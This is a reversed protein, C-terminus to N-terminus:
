RLSWAATVVIVAIPKTPRPAMPLRIAPRRSSPLWTWPVFRVTDLGALQGSPAHHPAAGRALDGLRGLHDETKGSGGLPRTPRSHRETLPGRLDTVIATSSGAGPHLRGRTGSNVVNKKSRPQGEPFPPWGRQRFSRTTIVNHVLTSAGGRVSEGAAAVIDCARQDTEDYWCRSLRGM